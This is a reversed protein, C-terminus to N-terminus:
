EHCIFRPCQSLLSEAQHMYVITTASEHKIIDLLLTPCHIRVNCCVLDFLFTNKVQFMENVFVFVWGQVLKLKEEAHCYAM